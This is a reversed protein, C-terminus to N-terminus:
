KSQLPSTNKSTSSKNRNKSIAHSASANCATNKPKYPAKPIRRKERSSSTSTRSCFPGSSWHYRHSFWITFLSTFTMMFHRGRIDVFSRLFISRFPLFWTKTFSTFFWRLFEWITGDEMFSCCDGYCESNHYHMIVRNCLGWVRRELSGLASIHLRSWPCMTPGM